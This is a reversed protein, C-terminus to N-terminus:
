CFFKAAAGNGSAVTYSASGSWDGVLPAELADIVAVAAEDRHIRRIRIAATAGIEPTADGRSRSRHRRTARIEDRMIQCERDFLRPGALFKEEASMRRAQLVRERYIADIQEQTPEM